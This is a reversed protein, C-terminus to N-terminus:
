NLAAVAIAVAQFGIIDLREADRHAVAICVDRKVIERYVLCM